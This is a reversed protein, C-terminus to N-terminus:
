LKLFNLKKFFDRFCRAIDFIKKNKFFISALSTIGYVNIYKFYSLKILRQKYCGKMFKLFNFFGGNIHAYAYILFNLSYQRFLKTESEDLESPLNERSFMLTEIVGKEYSKKFLKSDQGHHIRYNVLPINIFACSGKKSIETLFIRDAFDSFKDFNMRSNGIAETKYMTSDFAYRLWSMIAKTFEHNNKYINYKIKDINFNKFDSINKDCVMNLESVVFLVDGHNDL